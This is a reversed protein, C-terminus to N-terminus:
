VESCVALKRVDGLGRGGGGWLVTIRRGENADLLYLSYSITRTISEVAGDLFSISSFCLFGFWSRGPGGAVVDLKSTGDPESSM